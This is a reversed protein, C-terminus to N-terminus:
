SPAPALREILVEVAILYAETDFQEPDVMAQVAFGSILSVAVAALGVPTMDPSQAQGPLVVGEAMGTFAARYRELAAGIRRRIAPQQVGLAWYEYFLRTARPERTLRGLEQRLLARLREPPNPMKAIHEAVDLMTSTALVRDLLASILQDRQKFYFVVLGHSLGAKAAVARLTVGDIGRRLAVEYAASVIQQRRKEKPARPGPMHM